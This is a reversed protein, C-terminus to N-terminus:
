SEVPAQRIDLQVGDADDPGLLFRGKRGSASQIRRWADPRGTNGRELVYTHNKSGLDKLTFEGSESVSISVHQKSLLPNAISVSRERALSNVVRGVYVTEYARVVREVPEIGSASFRLSVAATRNGTTSTGTTPPPPPPPSPSPSVAPGEAAARRQRAWWFTWVIGNVVIALAPWGEIFRSFDPTTLLGVVIIAATPLWGKLGAAASVGRRPAHAPQQPELPDAATETADELVHLAAAASRLRQAPQLALGNNVVMALGSGIAPVREHIPVLLDRGQDLAEKRKLAPPPPEGALCQYLTASLSYLDTWAGQTERMDIQELPAYQSTFVGLHSGSREKDFTDRAAGFDILVPKHKNATVIINSPKIDRHAYGTAHLESLASLLNLAIRRVEDEALRGGHRTCHSRLDEGQVFPMVYYSTNNAEFMDTVRVIYPSSFRRILAAEDHFRGLWRRYEAEFGPNVEVRTQGAERSVQRSDTLLCEKVVVVAGRRRDLAKYAVGFGGPRGLVQGVVYRNGRLEHRYPLFRSPRQVQEDFGCTPCVRAPGKDDFCSPCLM